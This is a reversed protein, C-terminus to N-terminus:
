YTYVYPRNLLIEADAEYLREAAFSTFLSSTYLFHNVTAWRSMHSDIEYGSTLQKFEATNRVVDCFEINEVISNNVPNFPILYNKATERAKDILDQETRAIWDASNTYYHHQARAWRYLKSQYTATSVVIVRTFSSLDLRGPWVHTGVWQVKKHQLQDIIQFFEATDFETQVTNSDNIKALSHHPNNIGGVSNVTSMTQTFIDCLLGGCTYHPYCILNM